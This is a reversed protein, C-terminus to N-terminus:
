KRRHSVAHKKVLVKKPSVRAKKKPVVAPTESTNLEEKSMEANEEDTPGINDDFFNEMEKAKYINSNYKNGLVIITASDQIMRIFVANNGHWWGNHYIVKKGDPYVNMRWGYGYNRIGPKENSYPTFAKELTEKSFIQNTYM